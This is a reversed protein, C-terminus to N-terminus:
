ENGANENEKNEQAKKIKEKLTSVKYTELNGNIGLEKAQAILEKKENELLDSAKKDKPAQQKVPELPEAWSPLKDGEFNIVEGVGILKSQYWAKKIAKVKM